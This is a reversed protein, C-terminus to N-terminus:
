PAGTGCGVYDVVSATYEDQTDFSDQHEDMYVDVFDEGTVTEGCWTVDNRNMANGLAGDVKALHINDDWADKDLEVAYGDEEEVVVGWDLLHERTGGTNEIVEASGEEDLMRALTHVRVEREIWQAAVYDEPLGSEPEPEPDSASCGSLVLGATLALASLATARNTRTLPDELSLRHRSSATEPTRM